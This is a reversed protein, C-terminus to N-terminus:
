YEYYRLGSFCDEDSVARMFVMEDRTAWAHIEGVSVPLRMLLMGLYCLALTEVLKPVRKVEGRRSGASMADSDEVEESASSLGASSFGATSFREGEGDREGHVVGLRLGWLDRVVTELEGPFGRERVLWFCQKWLILQYCQLYLETAERGALM